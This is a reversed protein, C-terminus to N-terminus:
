MKSIYECVLDVYEFNDKNRKEIKGFCQVIDFKKLNKIKEAINKWAKCSVFIGRKKTDDVMDDIDCKLSFRMVYNNENFKSIVIDTLLIGIVMINDGDSFDNVKSSNNKDFNVIM